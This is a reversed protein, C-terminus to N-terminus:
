MSTQHRSDSDRDNIYRKATQLLVAGAASKVLEAIFGPSSRAYGLDQASSVLADVLREAPSRRPTLIGSALFGVAAAAGLAAFPHDAVQARWDMARELRSNLQDVAANISERRAAIDRRIQDATRDDEASGRGSATEVSRTM